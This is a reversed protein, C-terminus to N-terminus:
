PSGRDREWDRGLADLLPRLQEAYPRWRGISSAFLPLRVQGASATRVARDTEHFNLCRGDWELGCYAVIRRAQTEFDAVMEEYQVELMAGEPLVRRWNEMLAEYARYHRGLEGLDYTYELGQSFLNAYCSYCTDVPDRRVHIIRAQPLTLHIVGVRSFNAPLKDTIRDADPALSHLRGVYGAGLARLREGSLSAFDFPFRAGAHGTSVLEPLYLLEGAGFVRPHSALVQEVLTTGSRPMGVIFVPLTSPHGLGQRAGILEPTFVDGINRLLALQAAEDYALLKRKLRNGAALHEFAAGHRGIDGYAKALAFHLEVQDNASLSGSHQALDEMIALQPDDEKM